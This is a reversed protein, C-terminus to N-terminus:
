SLDDRFFYGGNIGVVFSSNQTAMQDLAQLQYPVSKNAVAPVAVVSESGLDARVINFTLPGSVWYDLAIMSLVM